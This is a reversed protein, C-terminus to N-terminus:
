DDFTVGLSIWQQDLGRHVPQLRGGVFEDDFALGVSLTLFGTGALGGM